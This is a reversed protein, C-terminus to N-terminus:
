SVCHARLHVDNLAELCSMHTPSRSVLMRGRNERLPHHGFEGLQSSSYYYHSSRWGFGVFWWAQHSLAFLRNSNIHCWLPHMSRQIKHKKFEFKPVEVRTVNDYVILPSFPLVMIGIWNLTWIGCLARMTWDEALRLANENCVLIESPM